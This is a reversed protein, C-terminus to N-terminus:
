TYLYIIRSKYNATLARVEFPFIRKLPWDLTGLLSNGRPVRTLLNSKRGGRTLNEQTFQIKMQRQLDIGAVKVNENSAGSRVTKWNSLVNRSRRM